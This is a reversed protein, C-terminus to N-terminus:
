DRLAAGSPRCGTPHQDPATVPLGAIAVSSILVIVGAIAHPAHMHGSISLPLGASMLGWCLTLFGCIAALTVFPLDRLAQLRVRERAVACPPVHPVRRV